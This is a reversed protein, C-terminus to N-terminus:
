APARGRLDDFEDPPQVGGRSTALFALGAVIPPVALVAAMALAQMWGVRSWTPGVILALLLAGVVCLAAGGVTPWRRAVLTAM